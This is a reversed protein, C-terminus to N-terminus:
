APTHATPAPSHSTGRACGVFAVVALAVSGLCTAILGYIFSRPMFQLTVRHVGADRRM